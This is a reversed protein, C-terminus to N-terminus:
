SNDNYKRNFVDINFKLFQRSTFVWIENKVLFLNSIPRDLEFKVDVVGNSDFRYIESGHSPVNRVQLFHNGVKLGTRWVPGVPIKFEGHFNYEPESPLFPNEIVRSRKSKSDIVVYKNSLVQYLYIENNYFDIVNYGDLIERINQTYYYEYQELSHGMLGIVAISNPEYTNVFISTDSIAYISNILRDSSINRIHAGSFSFFDFSKKQSDYTIIHNDTLFIDEIKLFEGPGAGYRGVSKIFQLDADYIDFYNNRRAWSVVFRQNMSVGDYTFDESYDTQSTASDNINVTIIKPPETCGVVFILILMLFRHSYEEMKNNYFNHARCVLNIKITM